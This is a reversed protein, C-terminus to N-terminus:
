LLLLSTFGNPHLLIERYLPALLHTLTQLLSLVLPDVLLPLGLHSWIHLLHPNGQFPAWVTVSPFFCLLPLCFHVNILLPSNSMVPMVELFTPLLLLLSMMLVPGQHPLLLPNTALKRLRLRHDPPVDEQLFLRPIRFDRFTTKHSSVFKRDWPTSLKILIPRPHGQDPSSSFRKPKIILVSKGVLFELTEDVSAKTFETEPLGFLILNCDRADPASHSLFPAKHAPPSPLSNVNSPPICSSAVAAYTNTSLDNTNRSDLVSSM